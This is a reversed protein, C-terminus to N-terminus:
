LVLGKQLNVMRRKSPRKSEANRTKTRRRQRHDRLMRSHHLLVVLVLGDVEGARTLLIVAISAAVECIALDRDAQLIGLRLSVNRAFDKM